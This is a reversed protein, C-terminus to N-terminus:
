NWQSRDQYDATPQTAVQDDTVDYVPEYRGSRITIVAMVALAVALLAVAVVLLVSTTSPQAIHVNLVADRAAQPSADVRKTMADVGAQCATLDTQAGSLSRSNLRDALRALCGDVGALSSSIGDADNSLEDLQVQQKTVTGGALNLEVLAEELRAPPVKFTLRSDGGGDYSTSESSKTAGVSALRSIVLGRLAVVKDSEITVDATAGPAHQQGSWWVLGLLVPVGLLVLM